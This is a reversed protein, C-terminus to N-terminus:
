VKQAKADPRYRESKNRNWWEMGFGAKMLINYFRTNSKFDSVPRLYKRQWEVKKEVNKRQNVVGKRIAIKHYSLIDRKM